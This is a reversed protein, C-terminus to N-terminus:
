SGPAPVKLRVLPPSVSTKTHFSLVFPSRAGREGGNEDAGPPVVLEDIDLHLLADAVEDGVRGVGSANVDNINGVRVVRDLQGADVGGVAAEVPHVRNKDLAVIQECDVWLERFDADEVHAM